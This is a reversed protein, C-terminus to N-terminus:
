RTQSAAPPCKGTDTASASTTLFANRRHTTALAPTPPQENYWNLWDVFEVLLDDLTRATSPQFFETEWTYHVRELRGNRWPQAPPIFVLRAGAALATRTAQPFTGFAPVLGVDNDAMVTHLRGGNLLHKIAILM